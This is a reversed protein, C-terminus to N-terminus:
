SGKRRITGRIQAKVAGAASAKVKPYTGTQCVHPVQGAWVEGGNAPYDGASVTEGAGVTADAGDYVTITLATSGCLIKVDSVCVIDNADLTLATTGGAGYLAFRSNPESLASADSSSFEGHFPAGGLVVSM